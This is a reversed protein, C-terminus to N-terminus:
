VFPTTGAAAPCFLKNGWMRREDQQPSQLQFQTVTIAPLVLLEEDQSM